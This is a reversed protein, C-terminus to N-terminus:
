ILLNFCFCFFCLHKVFDHFVCTNGGGVVMTLIFSCIVVLYKSCSTLSGSSGNKMNRLPSVHSDREGGGCGGESHTHTHSSNLDDIGEQTTRLCADNMLLTFKM